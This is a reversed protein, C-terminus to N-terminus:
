GLSEFYERKQFFNEQIKFKEKKLVGNAPFVIIMYEDANKIPYKTRLRAFISSAIPHGSWENSNEWIHM